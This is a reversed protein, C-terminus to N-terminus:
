GTMLVCRVLFPISFQSEAGYQAKGPAEADIWSGPECVYTSLTREHAAQNIVGPGIQIM